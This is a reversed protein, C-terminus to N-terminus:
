QNNVVHSRATGDIYSRAQNFILMTDTEDMAMSPKTLWIIGRKTPIYMCVPLCRVVLPYGTLKLAIEEPNRSRLVRRRVFSALQVATKNSPSTAVTPTNYGDINFTYWGTPSPMTFFSRVIGYYRDILMQRDSRSSM